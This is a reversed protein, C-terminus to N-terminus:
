SQTLQILLMTPSQTASDAVDANEESMSECECGTKSIKKELVLQTLKLYKKLSLKVTQDKMEFKNCPM